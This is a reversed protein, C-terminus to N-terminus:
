EPLPEIQIPVLLPSLMVKLRQPLSTVGADRQHPDVERGGEEDGRDQESDPDDDDLAPLAPRLHGIEQDVGLRLELCGRIVRVLPFREPVLKAVQHQPYRVAGRVDTDAM